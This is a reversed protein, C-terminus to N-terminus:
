RTNNKAWKQKIGYRLDMVHQPIRPLPDATTLGGSPSQTSPGEDVVIRQDGFCFLLTGGLRTFSATELLPRVVSDRRPCPHFRRLIATARVRRETASGGGLRTTRCSLLPFPSFSRAFPSLCLRVGMLFKSFHTASVPGGIYYKRPTRKSPARIIANQVLSALTCSFELTLRPTEQAM